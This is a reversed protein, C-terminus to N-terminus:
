LLVLYFSVQKYGLLKGYIVLFNKLIIFSSKLYHLM